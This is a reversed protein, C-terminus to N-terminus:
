DGIVRTAGLTGFLGTARTQGRSKLSRLHMAPLSKWGGLTSQWSVVPPLDYLIAVAPSPLPVVPMPGALLSASTIGHRRRRSIM